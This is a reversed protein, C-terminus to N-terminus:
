CVCLQQYLLWVLSMVNQRIILKGTGWTIIKCLGCLRYRFSGNLRSKEIRGYRACYAGLDFFQLFHNPHQPCDTPTISIQWPNSFQSRSLTFPDGKNLTYDLHTLSLYLHLAIIVHFKGAVLTLWTFRFILMRIPCALFKTRLSWSFASM